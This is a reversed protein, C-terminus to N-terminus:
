EEVNIHLYEKCYKKYDEIIDNYFVYEDPLTICYNLFARLDTLCTGCVYPIPTTGSKYEIYKSQNKELWKNTLDILNENTM